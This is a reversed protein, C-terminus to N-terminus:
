EKRKEINSKQQSKRNKPSTIVLVHCVAELIFSKIPGRGSSVKSESLKRILRYKALYVMLGAMAWPMEWYYKNERWFFSVKLTPEIESPLSASKTRHFGPVGM